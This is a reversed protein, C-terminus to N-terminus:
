LKKWILRDPIQVGIEKYYKVAGPHIPVIMSTMDMPKVWKAAALAKVIEDWHQWTTKTLLYVLDDPLGPRVIVSQIGSVTQIDETQFAYTKAPIVDPTQFPSAMNVLKQEQPTMSILKIKRNVAIDMIASWPAGVGYIMADVRGDKVM